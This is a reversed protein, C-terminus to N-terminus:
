DARFGSAKVADRWRETDAKMMAAFEEPSNPIPELDIARMKAQADPMRLAATFERNLRQVIAPPTGAPAMFGTWAYIEMKPYGLEKFTPVGPMLPSREGTLAYAKLKGAEVHPKVSTIPVFATMVQGGLLDQVAPPTGKYAVHLMDIGALQNLIVGAFHSPNGATFSAFSTRGPNAKAFTIFEALTNAPVSTHAAFVLQTRIAATIPTFDRVPDYPLKAFAHPNISTMGSTCLLITYGDPPSQILTQASIVGAGGAKYEYVFPQGTVEKFRDGVIRMVIENVNGAPFPSIMRIPKAPFDQAFLPAGAAALALLSIRVANQLATRLGARRAGRSTM